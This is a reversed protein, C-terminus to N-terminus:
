HKFILCFIGKFSVKQLNPNNKVLLALLNNEKEEILYSIIKNLDFHKHLDLLYIYHALEILKDNQTIMGEIIPLIRDM